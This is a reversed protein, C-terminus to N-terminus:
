GTAVGFLTGVGYTAAAAAVGLALQRLGGFWWSRTTLRSVLAGTIFLALGALAGMTVISGNGLVFPLMPVFAGLAFACFSSGAAVYPSPLDDPDVGLEERAHVRWATEPEAHVQGAMTQATDPDVGYEEYRRALEYQEGLPNRRIEARERAIEAQTAETQSVVSTYEGVAMSLAGAVLGALGTLVVTTTPQGAGVVGAMLAFNSVLGDM